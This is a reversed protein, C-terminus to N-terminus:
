TTGIEHQGGGVSDPIGGGVVTLSEGVLMKANQCKPCKSM